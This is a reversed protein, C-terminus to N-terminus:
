FNDPVPVEAVTKISGKFVAPEPDFPQFSPDNWVGELKASAKLKGGGTLTAKGLMQLNGNFPPTGPPFNIVSGQPGGGNALLGSNFKGNDLFASRDNAMISNVINTTAPNVEVLEVDDNDSDAVLVLINSPSTLLSANTIKIKDTNRTITGKVTVQFANTDARANLMAGIGFVAALLCLKKM